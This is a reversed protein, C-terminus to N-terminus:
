VEVLEVEHKEAITKLDLPPRISEGTPDKRDRLPRFAQDIPVAQIEPRLDNRLYFANTGTEDCAVLRYGKKGALKTLAMLSAGHIGKPAKAMDTDPAITLSDKPGCHGNYELVMVRPSCATMAELVWYDFSDIDLSFFDVEGALGNRKILTNVNDPTVELHEFAVHPNRGFKEEARKINELDYDVMVGRWGFETALMGSNGGSGGSGIEVFTRNVVGATQLLALVMGDEENQSFLKFRRATAAFPYEEGLFDSLYQARILANIKGTFHGRWKNEQRAHAEIADIRKAIHALDSQIIAVGLTRRVAHVFARIM